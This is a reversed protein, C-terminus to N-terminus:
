KNCIPASLESMKEAFISSWRKPLNARKSKVTIDDKLSQWEDFEVKVTGETPLLLESM